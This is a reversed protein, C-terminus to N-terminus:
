SRTRWASKSAQQQELTMFASRMASDTVVRRSGRIEAIWNGPRHSVGDFTFPVRM